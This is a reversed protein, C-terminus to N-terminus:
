KKKAMALLTTFTQAETNLAMKAAYQRNVSEQDIKVTPKPRAHKESVIKNAESLPMQKLSNIYKMDRKAVAEPSLDSVDEKPRKVPEQRVPKRAPAQKHIKKQVVPAPPAPKKLTNLAPRNSTNNKVTNLENKPKETVPPPVNESAGKTVKSAIMKLAQVELDNFQSEKVIQHIEKQKESKMGLLIELREIIFEKIESQVKIVAQPMADVGDFLNHKILMEYLRGQELRIRASDVVSVEEVDLFEEVTESESLDYLGDDGDEQDTYEVDQEDNEQYSTNREEERDWFDNDLQSM